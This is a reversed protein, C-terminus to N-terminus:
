KLKSVPLGRLPSLDGNGPRCLPEQSNHFQNRAASAVQGHVYTCLEGALVTGNKDLDAAGRLGKLLFYTFLSHQGQQYAHAEQLSSNGVMWMVGDSEGTMAAAEWVPQTPKSSNAGPSPDLSLDLLFFAKKISTHALARQVRALSFTRGASALSGDYPIISVAGSMADVVARGSVFVYAVTPPGGQMPLWREFIEVLDDKLGHSDTLVKVRPQPIGLVSHFYQAVVEADRAAFKVAPMTSDRFSGVGIAIGVANPQKLKGMTKPLQDVDVSLVEVDDARESSIAVVFRKASPLEVGAAARLTCVLEGQESGPVQGLKGEVTVRRVEGPQVEGIPVTPKLGGVIAPHGALLIEVGQAAVTGENKVEFEVTFPEAEELIQNRSEDRLITRFSLKTPGAQTEAAGPTTVVTAPVPPSVPQTETPAASVPPASPQVPVPSVAVEAAPTIPVAVPASGGKKLQAVERVKPATGLQEAMGEALKEIAEQAVMAVGTVDCTDAKSEAEGIASAQLRKSHLVNGQQDTYSFAAGVTATVPYSKNGKRPVFLDVQRLGLAADVRGDPMTHAATAPLVQQFVRKMRKEIAQELQPHIPLTVTQGCADRYEMAATTVSADLRLQVTLPLNYNTPLGSRQSFLQCGALAALLVGAAMLRIAPRGTRCEHEIIRHSM